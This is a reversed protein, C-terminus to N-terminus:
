EKYQSIERKTAQRASIIRIRVTSEDVNDFTHHVVLLGGTAPLGITIWRDEGESHGEDYVSLARPDKFITAAQGFGVGHKGLNMRAKAPDWEFNYNV